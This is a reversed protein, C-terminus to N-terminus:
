QIVDAPIKGMNYCQFLYNIVLEVFVKNSYKRAFIPTTKELRKSACIRPSSLVRFVDVTEQRTLFQFGLVISLLTQRDFLSVPHHSQWAAIQDTTHKIALM